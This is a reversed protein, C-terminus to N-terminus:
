GNNVPPIVIDRKTVSNGFIDTITLTYVGPVPKYNNQINRGDWEDEFTMTGNPPITFMKQPQPVGMSPPWVVVHNANRYEYSAIWNPSIWGTGSASIPNATTNHVEYTIHVVSDSATTVTITATTVTVNSTNGSSETNDGGGGCGFIALCAAICAIKASTSLLRFDSIAM